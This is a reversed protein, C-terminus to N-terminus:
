SEDAIQEPALNQPLWDRAHGPPSYEYPGRYVVPDEEFNGHGAPSPAAWELTNAHWPNKGAEKGVFFSLVLNVLFPLQSLLLGIAGITALTHLRAVEPTQLAEFFAPNSIRRQHGGLGLLFM